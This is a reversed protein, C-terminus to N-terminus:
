VKTKKAKTKAKKKAAKREAKEAEAAAKTRAEAETKRQLPVLRAAAEAAGKAIEPLVSTYTDSTIKISSHGLMESVVKMDVGGALALTAAGHRLDHLRIPPLGSAAILRAFMETVKGPHLWSGDENTFVRGTDKWAPGWDAREKRQQERHRRLVAVTDDDLAVTRFSGDTKPASEGVEWGDQVLQTTVTLSSDDLNTESWLQGCAEGRRLGRFAIVHWMAYLRDDAVSDLFAGTQQPTWVMVPSPKMCTERWQAVREPTWVLGKPKTAPDLKVHAAPNLTILGEPIAANLATRLTARIRQRTAAGTTRRFPPMGALEAHLAKRRARNAAGKNPVTALEAKLAHRLANNELIEENADAIATFMEALTSVRLRDVRIHGIRPKLHIRVDCEYRTLGSKRIKKSALWTDLWEGVTVRTSLDQGSKLRNRTEEIDPLQAKEDAVKVLLEAVLSLDEADDKGLALLGRVHDLDAQAEKLTGYGSRNFSRRTGDEANPLEQRISYAGHKRSGLKPCSKGLPKGTAADRCYCRHYTSGKM